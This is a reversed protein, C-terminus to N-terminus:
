IWPSSGKSVTLMVQALNAGLSLSSLHDFRGFRIQNYQLLLLTSKLYALNNQFRALRDKRLVSKVAAWTRVCRKTSAFDPSIENLMAHLRNVYSVCSGLVDKLTADHRNAQAECEIDNLVTSLLRLDLLIDKIDDPADRVSNWFDILKKVSDALQISISAIATASAAVEM